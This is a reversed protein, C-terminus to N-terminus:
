STALVGAQILKQLLSALAGRAEADIVAGGTPMVPAAPRRWSGAYLRFSGSARDFVHLGDRPEVFRWGAETRGAIEGDHGAFDGQPASGVLWAQGPVPNIPPADVEGEIVCHLLLDSKLMAENVFFEKQAQGAFLLPLAFRPTATDFIFPETM